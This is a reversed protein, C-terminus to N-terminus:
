MLKGKEFMENINYEFYKKKKLKLMELAGFIRYFYLKNWNCYKYIM